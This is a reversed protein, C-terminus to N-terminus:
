SFVSAFDIVLTCHLHAPLFPIESGSSVGSYRLELSLPIKDLSMDVLAQVLLPKAPRWGDVGEVASSGLM